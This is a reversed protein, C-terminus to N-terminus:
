VMSGTAGTQGRGYSTRPAIRAQGLEFVDVSSHLHDTTRAVREDGPMANTRPDNELDEEDAQREERIRSLASSCTLRPQIRCRHGIRMRIAAASALGACRSRCAVASAAGTNM